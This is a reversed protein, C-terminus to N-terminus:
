LSDDVDLGIKSGHRSIFDLCVLWAKRASVDRESMEKLWAMAKGLKPMISVTGVTGLRTRIFSETLIIAISQMFYHLACWWPCVGYLWTLDPKDPLLELLQGAAQICIATM